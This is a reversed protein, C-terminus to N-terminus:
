TMSLDTIDFDNELRKEIEQDDGSYISIGDQMVMDRIRELELNMQDVDNKAM